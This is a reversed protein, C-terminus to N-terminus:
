KRNALAAAPPIRRERRRAAVPAAAFGRACRHCLHRACAVALKEGLFNRLAAIIKEKCPATLRGDAARELPLEVSENERLAKLSGQGIEVYVTPPNLFAIKKM